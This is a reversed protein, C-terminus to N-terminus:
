GQAYEKELYALAAQAGSCQFSNNPDALSPIKSAHDPQRSDSNPEVGPAAQVMRYPLELSCLRERVRRTGPSAEYGILELPQDVASRSSTARVGLGLRPIMALQVMLDTLPGLALLLNPRGVGYHRYLHRIIADSEYLEDGTNPDILYPFQAKGGHQIVFPRFLQGGKPCPRVEVDIALHTLAERVKRCFPCGEFEYLIPTEEPRPGQRGARAGSGLRLISSILSTTQGLIESM